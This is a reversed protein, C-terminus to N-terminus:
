YFENYDPLYTKPVIAAIKGGSIAVACNYLQGGVLLPAGVIIASKTTASFDSLREIGKLAAEILTSNHFLDGCTYATVCLEPFVIVSAGVASIEATIAEISAINYDVDAVNVKPVAAAVRLYGHNM